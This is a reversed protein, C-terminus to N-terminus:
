SYQENRQLVFTATTANSCEVTADPSGILNQGFIIADWDDPEAYGLAFTSCNVGLPLLFKM